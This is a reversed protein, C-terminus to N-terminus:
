RNAGAGPPVRPKRAHQQARPAAGFWSGCARLPCRHQCWTKPVAPTLPLLLQHFASSPVKGQGEFSKRNDKM